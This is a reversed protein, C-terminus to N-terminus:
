QDYEQYLEHAAHWLDSDYSDPYIFGEKEDICLKTYELFITLFVVEDLRIDLDKFINGNPAITGGCGNESQWCDIPENPHVYIRSRQFWYRARGEPWDFYDEVSNAYFELADELEAQDLCVDNCFVDVGQSTTYTPNYCSVVFLLPLIYKM